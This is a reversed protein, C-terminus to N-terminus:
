PLITEIYVNKKQFTEQIYKCVDNHTVKKLDKIMKKLPITKGKYIIKHSADRIIHDATREGALVEDILLQREEFFKKEYYGNKIDSLIDFIKTEAATVKDKDLDVSIYNHIHDVLPYCGVSVSYCLGMEERLMEFLLSHMLKQSMHLVMENKIDKSREITISYTGHDQKSGIDDSRYLRRKIKPPPVATVKKVKAKKTNKLELIKKRLYSLDRNKVAGALVVYMNGKGYNEKHFKVLSQHSILSITEPWGIPSYFRNSELGPKINKSYEKLYNKYKENRFLGWSEQIIITREREAEKPDLIPSFVIDWLGSLTRDFNKPLCKGTFETKWFGTHANLSDLTYKKSFERVKDKTPYLKTGDFVLHELFHALGEQGKPDNYAGVMFGIGIHICPSWPLHKYYVPVGNIIKKKFDYPDKTKM